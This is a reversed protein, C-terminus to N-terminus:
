RTLKRLGRQAERRCQPMFPAIGQVGVEGNPDTVVLQGRKGDLARAVEGPGNLLKAKVECFPDGGIAYGRESKQLDLAEIIAANRYRVEDEGGGCAVIAAGGALLAAMVILVPKM